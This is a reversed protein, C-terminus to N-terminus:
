SNLCLTRLRNSPRGPYMPTSFSRIPLKIKKLKRLGSLAPQLSPEWKLVRLIAESDEINIFRVFPIGFLGIQEQRHVLLIVRSGRQEELKRILTERANQLMQFRIQPWLFSWLILLWLLMGFVDM